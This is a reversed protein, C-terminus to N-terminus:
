ACRQSIQRRLSLSLAGISPLPAVGWFPSSRRSMPRVPSGQPREDTNDRGPATEPQHLQDRSAEKRPPWPARERVYATLIELIPEYDDRSERALRELAYIGGLRVNIQDNGLQDVARTFRETIQGQRNLAFTRSTYYAGVIAISGALTALLATRVRGIEAARDIPSLGHTSALWEPAWKIVVVILLVFLAACPALLAVRSWSWTRLSM